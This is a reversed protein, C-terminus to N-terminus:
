LKSKLVRSEVKISLAVLVVGLLRRRSPPRRGRLKLIVGPVQTDVSNAEALASVQGDILTIQDELAEGAAAAALM